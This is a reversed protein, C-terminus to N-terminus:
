ENPGETEVSDALIVMRNHSVELFGGSISLLIPTGDAKRARVQGARLEAMLPAHGALVGLYGLAGPAVVSVVEESLVPQEPTVIDLMFTREPM